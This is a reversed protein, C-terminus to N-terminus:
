AFFEATLYGFNSTVHMISNAYSGRLDPLLMVANASSICPYRWLNKFVGICQLM